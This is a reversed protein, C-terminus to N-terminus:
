IEAFIKVTNIGTRISCKKGLEGIIQKSLSISLLAMDVSLRVLKIKGKVAIAEKLVRFVTDQFCAFDIFFHVGPPQKCLLDVAFGFVKVCLVM